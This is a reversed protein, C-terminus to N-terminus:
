NRVTCDVLIIKVTSQVPACKKKLIIPTSWYPNTSSAIAVTGTDEKTLHADNIENLKFLVTCRTQVAYTDLASTTTTTTTTNPVLLRESFSALYM